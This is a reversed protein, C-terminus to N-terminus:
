RGETAGPAGSTPRPKPPPAAAPKAGAPPAGAAAPGGRVARVVEQISTTGDLVKQLAQAQL